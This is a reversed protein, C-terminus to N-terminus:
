QAAALEAGSAWGPLVGAEAATGRVWIRRGEHGPCPCTKWGAAALVPDPHPLGPGAPPAAPNTTNDSM